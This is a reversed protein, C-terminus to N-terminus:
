FSKMNTYYDDPIDEAPHGHLYEYKTPADPWHEERIAPNLDWPRSYQQLAGVARDHMAEALARLKAVAQSDRIAQQVDQWKLNSLMMGALTGAQRLQKVMNANEKELVQTVHWMNEIKGSDLTGAIRREEESGSQRRSAFDQDLLRKQENTFNTLHAGTDRAMQSIDMGSTTRYYEINRETGKYLPGVFKDRMDRVAGLERELQSATAFHEGSLGELARAQDLYMADREKIREKEEDKGSFHNWIAAGVNVLSAVILGGSGFAALGWAGMAAQTIAGAERQAAAADEMRGEEQARVGEQILLERQHGLTIATDVSEQGYETILGARYEGEQTGSLIRDIQSETQQAGMVKGVSTGIATGINVLGANANGEAVRQREQEQYSAELGTLTVSTRSQALMNSLEAQQPYAGSLASFRSVDAGALSLANQTARAREAEKERGSLLETEQGSQALDKTIAARVDGRIKGYAGSKYIGRKALGIDRTKLYDKTQSALSRKKTGYLYDKVSPLLGQPDANLEGLIDTRLNRMSPSQYYDRASQLYSSM